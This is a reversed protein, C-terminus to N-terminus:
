NKNKKKYIYKVRITIASKGKKNGTLYIKYNSTKASAAKKNSNKIIKIKTIKCKSPTIVKIQKKAGKDLTITKTQLKILNKNQQKAFVMQLNSPIIMTITLLLVALKNLFKKGKM